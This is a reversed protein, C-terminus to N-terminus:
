TRNGLTDVEGPTSKRLGLVAWSLLVVLPYVLVSGLVQILALSLPPQPVVFLAAALRYTLFVGALVIAVTVWEMMFPQDRLSRTQRKLTEAGALALAAGLGPPRQFLFDALLMLVAIALAPVYEPRRVAWAFTLCLLYAPPALRRPTFELPMLQLLILFLGLGLYAARMSWLRWSSPDSM